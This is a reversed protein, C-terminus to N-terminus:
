KTTKRSKRNRKIPRRTKRKRGGTTPHFWKARLAREADIRQNPDPHTMNKVLEELLGPTQEDQESDYKLREFKDWPDPENPHFIPKSLREMTQSEYSYFLEKMKRRVYFQSDYLKKDPEYTEYQFYTLILAVGLSYIDSKFNIRHKNKFHPDIYLPTGYARPFYYNDNPIWRAMGFDFIKANNESDLGINELKIDLHEYHFTHMTNLANLAGKFVNKLQLYPKSENNDLYKILDPTTLLEIIAYVRRNRNKSDPIFAYGFEYVACINSKEDRSTEVMLKSLFAQLFMGKIEQNLNSESEGANTIRLAKKPDEKISYVENYTGTGLLKDTAYNNAEPCDLMYNYNELKDNLVKRYKLRNILEDDNCIIRKTYITGDINITGDNQTEAAM